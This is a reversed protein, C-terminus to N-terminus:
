KRLAMSGKRVLREFNNKKSNKPTEFPATKLHQDRDDDIIIWFWKQGSIYQQDTVSRSPMQQNKSFSNFTEFKSFWRNKTTDAFNSFLANKTHLIPRYSTRSHNQNLTKRTPYTKIKLITKSYSFLKDPILELTNGLPPENITIKVM